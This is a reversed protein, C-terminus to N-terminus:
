ASPIQLESTTYREFLVMFKTKGKRVVLIPSFSFFFITDNLLGNDRRKHDDNKNSIMEPRSCNEIETGIQVDGCTRHRAEQTLVATQKLLFFFLFYFIFVCM